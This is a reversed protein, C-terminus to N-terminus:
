LNREDRKVQTTATTSHTPPNRTTNFAANPSEAYCPAASGLRTAPHREAGALLLFGNSRLAQPILRAHIFLAVSVTTAAPTNLNRYPPDLAKARYRKTSSRGRDAEAAPTDHVNCPEWHCCPHTGRVTGLTAQLNTSTESTAIVVTTPTGAGQRFKPFVAGHAM